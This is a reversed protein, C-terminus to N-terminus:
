LENLVDVSEDNLDFDETIVKLLVAGHLSIEGGTLGKVLKLVELLLERHVVTFVFRVMRTLLEKSERMLAVGSKDLSLILEVLKVFEVM